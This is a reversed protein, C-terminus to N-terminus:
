WNDLNNEVQNLIDTVVSQAINTAVDTKISADTESINAGFANAQSELTQRIEGM